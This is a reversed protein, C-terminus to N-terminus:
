LLGEADHWVDTEEEQVVSSLEDDENEGSVIGNFSTVSSAGTNIM